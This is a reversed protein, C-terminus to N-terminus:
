CRRCTNVLALQCNIMALTTHLAEVDEKVALDRLFFRFCGYASVHCGVMDVKHMNFPEALEFTRSKFYNQVCQISVFRNTFSRTAEVKRWGVGKPGKM